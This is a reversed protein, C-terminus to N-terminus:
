QRPDVAHQLGRRLGCGEGKGQSAEGTAPLPSVPLGPLDAYLDHHAHFPDLYFHVKGKQPDMLTYYLHQTCHCNSTMAGQPPSQTTVGASIGPALPAKMASLCGPASRVQTYPWTPVVQLDKNTQKKQPLNCM